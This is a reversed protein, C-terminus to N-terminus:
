EINPAQRVSSVTLLSRLKEHTCRAGLGLQSSVAERHGPELHRQGDRWLLPRHVAVGLACHPELEGDACIPNTDLEVSVVSSRESSVCEAVVDPATKDSITMEPWLPPNDSGDHQRCM